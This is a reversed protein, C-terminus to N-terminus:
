KSASAAPWLQNILGELSDFSEGEQTSEQFENTKGLVREFVTVHGTNRHIFWAIGQYPSFPVWEAPVGCEKWKDIAESLSSAEGGHARFPDYGPLNLHSVCLLFARHSSHLGSPAAANIEEDTVHPMGSPYKSTVITLFQQTLREMYSFDNDACIGQSLCMMLLAGVKGVIKSM